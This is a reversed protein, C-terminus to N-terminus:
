IKRWQRRMRNEEFKIKRKKKKQTSNKLEHRGVFRAQWVEWTAFSCSTLIKRLTTNSKASIELGRAKDPWRNGTVIGAFGNLAHRWFQSHRLFKRKANAIKFFLSVCIIHRQIIRRIHIRRNRQIQHIRWRTGHIVQWLLWTQMSSSFWKALQCATNWLDYILMGAANGIEIDFFVQPNSPNKPAIVRSM